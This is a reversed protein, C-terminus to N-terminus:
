QPRPHIAAGLWPRWQECTHQGKRKDKEGKSASIEWHTVEQAKQQGLLTEAWWHNDTTLPPQQTHPQPCLSPSRHEQCDGYSHPVPTEAKKPFVIGMAGAWAVEDVGNCAATPYGGRSCTSSRHADGLQLTVDQCEDDPRHRYLAIFPM